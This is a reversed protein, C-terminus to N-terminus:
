DYISLIGLADALERSTARVDDAGLDAVSYKGLASTLLQIEMKVAELYRTVGEEGGTYASVVIPRGVGAASAGLCLSKVVDGGDVLRGSVVIDLSAGGRKMKMANSLCALTPLGLDKLAVVPSMGTGGEKGDIWFADAGESSAILAAESLDRYPGSKLWLRCRPYNNKMMRIMGRLIERTFTGPASHRSYMEKVEEGPDEEFHYKHVLRLADERQVMTEGGLGPKAGQGLKIEFGILGEEIYPSLDKNSYCNNWLENYADELSQQILLGGYKDKLNELYAMAREMFCPQSPKNRRSFGWVTAVNEGIGMPIGARAAARAVELSVKNYVDTSGMSAVCLPMSSRFGGVSRETEVDLFVPERLLENMKKLRLPTFLPPVLLVSSLTGFRPYGAEYIEAGLLANGFESRPSFPYVASRGRRARDAVEGVPYSRTVDGPSRVGVSYRLLLRAVMRLVWGRDKM